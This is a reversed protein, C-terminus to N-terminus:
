RCAPRYNYRCCCRRRPFVLFSTNIRDLQHLNRLLHVFVCLDDHYFSHLMNCAQDAKFRFLVFTYRCRYRDSWSVAEDFRLIGLYYLETFCRLWWSIISNNCIPQLCRSYLIIGRWQVSNFSSALASLLHKSQFLQQDVQRASAM